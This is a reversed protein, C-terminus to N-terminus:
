SAASSHRKRVAPAQPLTARLADPPLGFITELCRVSGPRPVGRGREWGRVTAISCACLEALTRQTLGSWQRLVRIVAPLDGDRWTRPDLQAPPSVGAARAVVAVPQGYVSALRRVAALPPRAGREWSGVLHRSVGIRAAVVSQSLGCRHRMRRLPTTAPGPRVAPARTLLEHLVEVELRFADALAPLHDLPLRARGSEWNYVTAPPVGVTQAVRVAPIEARTRLVRLGHGRVGPAPDEPRRFRDFFASVQATEVELADALARVHVPGPLREGREWRRVSAPHVGLREAVQDPALGRRVRRDRLFTTSPASDPARPVADTSMPVEFPECNFHVSVNTM